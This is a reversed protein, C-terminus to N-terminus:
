EPMPIAGQRTSDHAERVVGSRIGETDLAPSRQSMHKIFEAENLSLAGKVVFRGRTTPSLVFGRLKKAIYTRISSLKYGSTNALDQATIERKERELQKLAKLLERFKDDGYVGLKTM